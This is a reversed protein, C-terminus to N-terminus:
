SRAGPLAEEVGQVGPEPGEDRSDTGAAPGESRPTLADLYRPVVEGPPGEACIVGQELWIVRRCWRLVGQLDHTALLITRGDRQFQVLRAHCKEKFAEDGVALVEDIILVEPEVHVAVSFGLRALMGSSYTRIPQDIFADLESFAVIEDMRRIAERRRLGLLVGNLVVNERGTLEPHFGAGLELLAGVRGSVHVTGSDAQLVGAVLGLATSKGSGNRGILGVTAGREVEFSVDRLAVHRDRRLAQTRSPLRLLFAKLGGLMHQYLPYSKSVHEFRVAIV